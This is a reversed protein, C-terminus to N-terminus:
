RGAILRFLMQRRILDRDIRISGCDVAAEALLRRSIIVSVCRINDKLVQTELDIIVHRAKELGVAADEFQICAGSNVREMKSRLSVVDM